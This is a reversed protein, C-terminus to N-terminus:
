AAAEYGWLLAHNRIGTGYITMGIKSSPPITVPPMMMPFILVSGGYSVNVREVGCGVSAMALVPSTLTLAGEACRARVIMGRAVGTDNTGAISIGIPVFVTNVPVTYATSSGVDIFSRSLMFTIWSETTTATLNEARLTLFISMLYPLFQPSILDGTQFQRIVGDGVKLPSQLTM